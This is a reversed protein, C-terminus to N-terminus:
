SEMEKFMKKAVELEIPQVQGRECIGILDKILANREGIQYALRLRAELEQNYLKEYM